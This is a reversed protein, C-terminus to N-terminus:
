MCFKTFVSHSTVWNLNQKLKYEVLDHFKYKQCSRLHYQHHQDRSCVKLLVPRSHVQKTQKLLRRLFQSNLRLEEANRFKRGPHVLVVQNEQLVRNKTGNGFLVLLGWSQNGKAVLYLTPNHNQGLTEVLLPDFLVYLHHHTLSHASPEQPIDKVLTMRQGARLSDKPWFSNGSRERHTFAQYNERGATAFPSANHSSLTVTPCFISIKAQANCKCHIRDSQAFSM